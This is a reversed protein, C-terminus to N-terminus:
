GRPPLVALPSVPGRRIYRIATAARDGVLYTWLSAAPGQASTVVSLFLRRSDPTWVHAGIVDFADPIMVATVTGAELDAVLLRGGGTSPVTVITLRNGDPALSASSVHYEGAPLRAIRDRGTAVDIVHVLRTSDKPCAAVAVERRDGALFEACGGLGRLTHRRIPDWVSLQGNFGSVVLGGGAAGRLDGPLAVRRLRRGAVDVLIVGTPDQIWVEDDRPGPVVASAQTAITTAAGGALPISLVDPLLDAILYGDQVLGGALSPLDPRPEVRQTALDLLAGGDPGSVLLRVPLPRDILRALRRLVPDASHLRVRAAVPPSTHLRRRQSYLASEVGLERTTAELQEPDIKRGAASASLLARSEAAIAIVVDSRLRRMSGYVRTAAARRGLDRLHAADERQLAVIAGRVLPADQPAAAGEVSAVATFLAVHTAQRVAWVTALRRLTWRDLQSRLAPVLAAAGLLIVVLAVVWRRGGRGRDRSEATLIDPTGMSV